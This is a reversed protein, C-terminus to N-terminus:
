WFVLASGFLERETFFRFEVNKKRGRRRCKLDHAVANSCSSLSDTFSLLCARARTRLTSRGVRRSLTYSDGGGAGRAARRKRRSSTSSARHGRELVFMEPFVCCCVHVPLACVSARQPPANRALLINASVVQETARACTLRRARACARPQKGRRALLLLLAQAPCRAGAGAYTADFVARTHLCATWARRAPTGGCRAPPNALGCECVKEAPATTSQETDTALATRHRGHAAWSGSHSFGRRYWVGVSRANRCAQSVGMPCHRQM